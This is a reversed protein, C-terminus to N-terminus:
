NFKKAKFHLLFFNVQKEGMKSAAAAAVHLQIDDSSSGNKTKALSDGGGGGASKALQEPSGGLRIVICASRAVLVLGLVIIVLSATDAVSFPTTLAWALHQAVEAPVQASMEQWFVPFVIEPVYRFRSIWPPKSIYLNIQIRASTALPTGTKPEVMLSFQHRLPDPRM